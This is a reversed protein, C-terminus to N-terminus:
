DSQISTHVLAVSTIQIVFDARTILHHEIEGGSDIVCDVGLGGTEEICTNVLSRKKSRM